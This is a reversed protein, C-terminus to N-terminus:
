QDVPPPISISDPNNSVDEPAPIQPPLRKTFLERYDTPRRSELWQFGSLMLDDPDLDQMPHFTANPKDLFIIHDVKQTKFYIDMKSCSAQNAGLYAGLDDRAYYISEGNGITKMKYLTDDRFYGFIDKGRIQNYLGTDELNVIFASRILDLRHAKQNKFLIAITDATMQSSDIWLIPSKYFRIVSDKYSYSLSDCKGQMNDRFILVDHYGILVRYDASDTTDIYALLTDAAIYLSDGSEFNCIVPTQTAVFTKERELYEAYDCYIINKEVTDLWEVNHYAKGFGTSKEYYISDARIVQPDNEIRANKKFFAIDKNADFWGDECYIISSDSIIDTPGFFYSINQDVNYKLTDAHLTYSPDILVVSDKFYAVKSQEYYYGVRSTLHTEKHRIAAGSHYRAVKHDLDYVLRDTTLTMGEKILKVHHYLTALKEPGIYILSDAYIDLSDGQTIHVNGYAHVRNVEAFFWASDCDMIIDDQKMKVNGLLKRIKQGGVEDYGLMDANLIKVKTKEQAIGHLPIFLALLFTLVTISPNM